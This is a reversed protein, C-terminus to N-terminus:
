LIQKVQGLGVQGYIAGLDLRVGGNDDPPTVGSVVAYNLSEVEVADEGSTAEIGVRYAGSVAREGESTLGDWTFSEVGASVPGIDYRNVVQGADNTITVTVNDASQGLEIGFPTAHMEGEAGEDLLVRSGPVLVGQGILGSAQLTQGANIQGTIDGLSQNLNEIGSVTNIQALQSTMEHNEMPKLPDQNQMQTILLTMFNNRLEDSQQANSASAPNANITNLVNSGIPSTM